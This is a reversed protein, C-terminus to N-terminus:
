SGTEASGILQQHLEDNIGLYERMERDYVEQDEDRSFDLRLENIVKTGQGIWERWTEASINQQIWEGVPGRFPPAELQTGSKGSRGCIFDGSAQAAAAAAEVDATIEPVDHGISKLQESITDRVLLDGRSAALLYGESLMKGAEDTKGCEALALGGLQYAKSMQPNLEIVRKFRQVADEYRKTEIYANGLSFHGMENDPDAATMNEFQAIRTDIDSM